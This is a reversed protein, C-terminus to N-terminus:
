RSEFRNSEGGAAGEERVQVDQDPRLERSVARFPGTVVQDGVSLTGTVVIHTDDSIGTEVEVMKVKGDEVIFVVKRLDEGETNSAQQVPTDTSDADSKVKNYDRVTVAQIPVALTNVDTRTFIDVTGSMGPRFIPMNDEPSIAETSGLGEALTAVEVNHRDLIRVKVPFNTVQEQTGAGQTRASNAIETVVGKFVREPYADVEIAATDGLAVNVVDNENVDVMIEMQDLKALTMLVTGQMQVTGLAREGLEVNLQSITGNMPAYITTRSLNETAERQRAEASQVSYGAAEYGAKQVEYTTEARELDSQPVANKEFLTRTRNMELEANLMDARRQALSAKSQLVGAESQELQARYFDPDIRVLLDGKSVRDGELVPLTIIEGSVDPSIQVEVEPQVRGSAVVVQTIDREDVTDVEVTTGEPGGGVFGLQKGAVAGVLLLIVLVSFIVLLRKTASGKKKAM